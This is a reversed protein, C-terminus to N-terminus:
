PGVLVEQQTVDGEEKDKRHRAPSPVDGKSLCMNVVSFSNTSQILKKRRVELYYQM